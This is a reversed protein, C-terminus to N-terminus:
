EIRRLLGGMRSGAHLDAAQYNDAIELLASAADHFRDRAAGLVASLDDRCAEWSDKFLPFHNSLWGPLVMGGLSAAASGLQDAADPLKGTGAARLDGLEVQVNGTYEGFSEGRTVTPRAVKICASSLTLERHPHAPDYGCTGIDPPPGPQVRDRNLADSLDTDYGAIRSDLRDLNENVSTIVSEPILGHGDFQRSIEWETEPDSDSGAILSGIGTVLSITGLGVALPGGGLTLGAGTASISLFNLVGVLTPEGNYASAAAEAIMLVNARTEKIKRRLLQLSYNLEQAYAQQLVVALQLPDGIVLQFNRAAPGTWEEETVLDRVDMLYDQAAGIRGFVTQATLGSGAGLGGLEDQYGALTRIQRLDFDRFMELRSVLRVVSTMFVDYRVQMPDDRDLTHHVPPGTGLAEVYELREAPGVVIDFLSLYRRFSQEAAERFKETQETLDEYFGM